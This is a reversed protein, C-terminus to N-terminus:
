LLMQASLEGYATWNVLNSASAGSLSNEGNPM